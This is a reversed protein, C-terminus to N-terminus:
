WTVVLDVVLNNGLVEIHSYAFKKCLWLVKWKQIHKHKSM